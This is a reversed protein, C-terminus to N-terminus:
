KRCSFFIRQADESISESYKFDSYVLINEFGADELLKIMKDTKHAKQIHSEEYRVYNKNEKQFINIDMHVTEDLEDYFNEWIYAKDDQTEGFTNNGLVVSLKYFSSIDFVFAGGKKLRDYIYKFIDKLENNELIYNFTDNVAIVCDIEYIDLDLETIDQSLFFVKSDYELTKERAIELMEDSYDIGVIEYGNELLKLTINGTGCGLELINKVDSGQKKILNVLYELWMDYDIEQMMDDYIMPLYTYAKM